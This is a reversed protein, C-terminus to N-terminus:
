TQHDFFHTATGDTKKRAHEPLWTGRAGLGPFGYFRRKAGAKMSVHFRSLLGRAGVPAPADFSERAGARVAHRCLGGREAETSLISAGPWM